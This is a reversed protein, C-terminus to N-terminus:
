VGAHAATSGAHIPGSMETLPRAGAGSRAAIIEAAIAVATEEDTLAGLDLGIPARLRRLSAQPVGRQRLAAVRAAHTTRSGLAGIYAAPTRLAAELLPVDFKPDHTLVCLVTREDVATRSLYRHPWAVVVESADPFREPTAFASRADCVTVRYGLFAGIRATAPAFGVAGFVIMRPPPAYTEIFVTTPGGSLGPTEYERCGTDPGRVMSRADEAIRADLREDGSSGVIGAPRVALMHGRGAGDVVTALACPEHRELAELVADLTIVGPGTLTRVAIEITGGCTPGIGGGDGESIGYSLLRPVGDLLAARAAEVVASDVCGGSVSGAIAGSGNVALVAGLPRPGSRSRGVVTAICVPEGAALWARLTATVDRM